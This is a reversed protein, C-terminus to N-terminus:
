ELAAVNQFLSEDARERCVRLGLDPSGEIEGLQWM